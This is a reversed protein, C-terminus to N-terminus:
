RDTNDRPAKPLLREMESFLLHEISVTSRTAADYGELYELLGYCARTAHLNRRNLIYGPSDRPLIETTWISFLTIALTKIRLSITSFHSLTSLHRGLDARQSEMMEYSVTGNLM